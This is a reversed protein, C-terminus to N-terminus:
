FWGSGGSDMIHDDAMLDFVLIFAPLGGNEDNWGGGWNGSYMLRYIGNLATMSNEADSFIATGSVKDTPDTDLMDSCSNFLFLGIISFIFLIKKM